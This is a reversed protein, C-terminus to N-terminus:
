FSQLCTRLAAILFVGTFTLGMGATCSVPEFKVTKNDAVILAAAVAAAGGGAVAVAVAGAAAAAGVVASWLCDKTLYPNKM